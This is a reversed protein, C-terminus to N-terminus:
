ADDVAVEREEVKFLPDNELYDMVEPPVGELTQTFRNSADFVLDRDLSTLLTKNVSKRDLVRRHQTPGKYVAVQVKKTKQASTSKQQSEAMMM